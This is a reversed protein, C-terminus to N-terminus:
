TGARSPQSVTGAQHELVYGLRKRSVITVRSGATALKRRLRTVYSDVLNQAPADAYGWVRAYIQAQSQPRGRQLLLLELLGTEKETLHVPNGSVAASRAATDLTVDGLRLVASRDAIHRRALARIRAELEELAFPKVLYDDAGLALGRVRDAVADRATLMLIPTGIHARRLLGCVDFGDSTEGLMVDLVVVDFVGASAAALAEHARRAVEVSMGAMVLWERVNALLQPDDDLVLVRTV